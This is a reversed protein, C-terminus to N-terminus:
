GDIRIDVPKLGAGRAVALQRADASIFRSCGLEVAAAVHLLDLSRCLHKAAYRRSLQVSEHFIKPWDVAVAALRGAQRDDEFHDLLAAAEAGALLGRGSLVRLANGIELTHLWTLPVQGAAQVERRAAASHEETVYVKVLASSDFYSKM